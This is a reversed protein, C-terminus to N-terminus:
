PALAPASPAQPTDGIGGGPGGNPTALGAKIADIPAFNLPAWFDQGKGNPLPPLGEMDRIDDICLWSGNRGLTYAQYRQLTDGRLRGTLNFRVIQSPPLLKSLYAEVRSLWASLTNIVFGIEMQEIGAGWSSTRDQFGLMHEPIRFFSAIDHRQFDRTGLFQADENGITLQQWSVGGTLVAPQQALGVGQHASKWARALELTETENLDGPVSLIGSPMASNGFFQGGYLETARALGFSSRVYEIPNLGVFSGPALLAPIHVVNDTNVATGNIRYIRKGTSARMAFIADPHQPTIMTAYGRVDRDTIVGFANGRLTLSYMLQTLFDQRTGEPWPNDILLPNDIQKLTGDPKRRFTELPLTAVADCLIAVCTYVTIVSMAQSENMPLGGVTGGLSGNTPPQSNGWPLTPDAGRQQLNRLISM